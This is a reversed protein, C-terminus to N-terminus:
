SGIRVTEAESAESWMEPPIRYPSIRAPLYASPASHPGGKSVFFLKPPPDGPPFHPPPIGELAIMEAGWFYFHFSKRRSRKKRSMYM